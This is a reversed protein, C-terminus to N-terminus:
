GWGASNFRYATLNKTVSQCLVKDMIQSNTTYDHDAGIEGGGNDPMGGKFFSLLLLLFFLLTPPASLPSLPCWRWWLWGRWRHRTNGRQLFLHSLLVLFLTKYRTGKKKTPQCSYSHEAWACLAFLPPSSHDALHQLKSILKWWMVCMMCFFEFLCVVHLM